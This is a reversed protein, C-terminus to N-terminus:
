RKNSTLYPHGASNRQEQASPKTTHMLTCHATHTLKRGSLGGGDTFRACLPTVGASGVGTDASCTGPARKGVGGAHRLARRACLTAISSLGSGSLAYRGLSAEKYAGWAGIRLLFAWRPAVAADWFPCRTGGASNTKECALVAGCAALSCLCAEVHRPGSSHLLPRANRTEKM